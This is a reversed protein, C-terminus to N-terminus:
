ISRALHKRCDQPTDIDMAGEPFAVTAVNEALGAILQRSGSGDPLSLLEDLLERGFLAPVGLGGGYGCAAAAKGGAARSARLAALVDKTLFPQDCVLVFLAEMGPEMELARRVGVRISSGIGREWEPNRAFSVECGELEGEVRSGDRGTVVVVPRCGAAADVARRILTRGEHLLLQKPQGLRSSGGAALIVAGTTEM